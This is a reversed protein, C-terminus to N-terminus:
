SVFANGTRENIEEQRDVFDKVAVSFTEIEKSILFIKRMQESLQAIFKEEQRDNWIESVRLADNRIKLLEEQLSEATSTLHQGYDKLAALDAKNDYM